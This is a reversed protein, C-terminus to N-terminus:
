PILRALPPGIHDAVVLPLRQWTKIALQYRPNDVNLEPAPGNDPRYYYWHLQTSEANWKKKFQEGGSETTSRGLHYRKFGRQCADKIMEWYLVYNAQLERAEPLGGAWMGEITGMFEGNLAVAIPRDSLHAVFIRTNQFATMIAAFYDRRYLPTGLDRWSVRMVSFFDDLLEIGGSKVALGSKYVRRVNTRHKSAYANWLKDPDADLTISASIKRLSVPLEIPLQQM